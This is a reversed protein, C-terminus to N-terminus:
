SDKREVFMACQLNNLDGKERPILMDLTHRLKEQGEALADYNYFFHANWVPCAPKSLDDDPPNHVCRSCYREQYDMGESVNSFYGM